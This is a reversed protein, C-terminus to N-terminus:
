VHQCVTPHTGLFKRKVFCIRGFGIPLFLYPIVMPTGLSTSMRENYRLAHMAMVWGKWTMVACFGFGSINIIHGVLACTGSSFKEAFFHIRLQRDSFLVDGGPILTIFIILFTNVELSWLTPSNFVYRMLVDYCITIVMVALAIQGLFRLGLALRRAAHDFFLVAKM